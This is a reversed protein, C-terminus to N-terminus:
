SHLDPRSREKQDINQADPQIGPSSPVHTIHGFNGNLLHQFPIEFPDGIHTDPAPREQAGSKVKIMHPPLVLPKRTKEAQCRNERSIQGDPVENHFCRHIIRQQLKKSFQTYVWATRNMRTRAAQNKKNPVVVPLRQFFSFFLIFNCCIFLTPGVDLIPIM